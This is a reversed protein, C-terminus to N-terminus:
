KIICKCLHVTDTHVLGGGYRELTLVTRIWSWIIHGTVSLRSCSFVWAFSFQHSSSVKLMWGMTCCSMSTWKLSVFHPLISWLSYTNHSQASHLEIKMRVSISHPSSSPKPSPLASEEWLKQTTGWNKLKSVPLVPGKQLIEVINQINARLSM